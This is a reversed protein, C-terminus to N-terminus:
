AADNRERIRVLARDAEAELIEKIISLSGVYIGFAFIDDAWSGTLPTDFRRLEDVVKMLRAKIEMIEFLDVKKPPSFSSGKRRVAGMMLYLGGDIRYCVVSPGWGADLPVLIAHLVDPEFYPLASSKSHADRVDEWCAYDGHYGPDSM